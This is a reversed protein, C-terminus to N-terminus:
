FHINVGLSVTRSQPTIDYRQLAGTREVEFGIYKTIYALNAANCFFRLKQVGLRQTLNGPMTYGLEIHRIKCYSADQIFHSNITTTNNSDGSSIRSFSNSTGPGRWRDLVYDYNNLYKYYAFEFRGRVSTVHSKGIDGQIHMNFDFNKYYANFTLGFIYSPLSSGQVVVDAPTIKKDGNTDEYIYDGPYVTSRETITKLRENIEDQTQYVGIINYGFVAQFPEGVRYGHGYNADLFYGDVGPQLKLVENSMHSGTYRIDFQFDGTRKFYSLIYEFGSNKM